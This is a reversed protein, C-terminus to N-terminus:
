QSHLHGSPPSLPAQVPRERLVGLRGCSPLAETSHCASPPGGRLRAGSGCGGAGSVARSSRLRSRPSLDCPSHTAPAPDRSVRPSRMLVGETRSDSQGAQGLSTVERKGLVRFSGEQELPNRQRHPPKGPHLFREQLKIVVKLTTNSNSKRKQPHIQQVNTTKM